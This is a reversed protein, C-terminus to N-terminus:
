VESHYEELKGLRRCGQLAPIPAFCEGRAMQPHYRVIHRPAHLSRCTVALWSMVHQVRAGMTPGSSFADCSSSNVDIDRSYSIRRGPVEPSRQSSIMIWCTNLLEENFCHYAMEHAYLHERAIGKANRKMFMIIGIKNWDQLKWCQVKFIQQKNVLWNWVPHIVSYLQLLIKFAM